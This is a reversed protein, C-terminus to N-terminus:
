SVKLRYVNLRMQAGNVEKGAELAEKIASKSISVSANEKACDVAARLENVTQDDSIIRLDEGYILELLKRWASMPLKPAIIKYDDPVADEDTVEVADPNKAASLTLTHGQLRRFKDKEDKGLTLIVGLAMNSVRQEVLAFTKKHGELRKIERECVAQKDQCYLIMQGVHERKDVAKDLSEAVAKQYEAEQEEPVLDQSNLLAELSEEVGFLTISTTPPAEPTAKAKPM